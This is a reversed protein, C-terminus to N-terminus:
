DRHTGPSAKELTQTHYMRRNLELADEDEDIALVIFALIFSGFLVPVAWIPWGGAATSDWVELRLWIQRKYVDGLGRSRPQDRIGDEDDDM